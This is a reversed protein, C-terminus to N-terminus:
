LCSGGHRAKVLCHKLLEAPTLKGAGQQVISLLYCAVCQAILENNLAATVMTVVVNISTRSSSDLTMM